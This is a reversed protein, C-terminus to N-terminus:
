FKIRLGETCNRCITIKKRNKLINHRFDNFFTSNWIALANDKKLNGLIFTSDKDFCCPSINGEWSIVMTNWIRSCRNRLRNKIVFQNNKLTYRSYKNLTPIGLRRSLKRLDNIELQNHKFVIFQLNILPYKTKYVQKLEVLNQIGEIVKSLNGGIRYKSYTQQTTGDVSIIIKKLGSRIIKECNDKSLYHGNTSTCTYIRNQDAYKILEFINSNLFPEGQFYIMQYIVYDKVEKIVSKYLDIDIFGKPRTSLNNGTPCEICNLNCHNTPETTISHPYGWVIVKKFLLSLWYGIKIQFLNIIKRFSLYRLLYYDM